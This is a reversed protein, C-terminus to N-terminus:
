KESCGHSPASHGPPVYVRIDIGEAERGIVVWPLRGRSLSREDMRSLTAPGTHGHVLALVRLGLEAARRDISTREYASIAFRDGKQHNHCRWFRLDMPSELSSGVLFGCLESDRAEHYPGELIARLEAV